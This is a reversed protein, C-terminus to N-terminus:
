SEVPAISICFMVFAVFLSPIIGINEGIYLLLGVTVSIVSSIVLQSKDNYEAVKANHEEMFYDNDITKNKM